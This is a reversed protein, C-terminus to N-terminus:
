RLSKFWVFLVEKSAFSLYRFLYVNPVTAGQSLLLGLEHIARSNGGPPLEAGQSSQAKTRERGVVRPREERTVSGLWDASM